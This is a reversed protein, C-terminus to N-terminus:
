LRTPRLVIQAKVTTEPKKTEVPKVATKVVEPSKPQPKTKVVEKKAIVAPPSAKQPEANENRTVAAAEQSETLEVANAETRKHTPSVLVPLEAIPESNEPTIEQAALEADEDFVPENMPPAVPSTNVQQSPEGNLYFYGGALFSLVALLGVVVMPRRSAPLPKIDAAKLNGAQKGSEPALDKLMRNLESM